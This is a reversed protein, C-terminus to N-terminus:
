DPVLEGVSLVFDCLHFGSEFVESIEFILEFMLVLVVQGLNLEDAIDLIADLLILLM